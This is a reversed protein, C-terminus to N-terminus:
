STPKPTPHPQTKPGPQAAPAAPPVAPLIRALKIKDIKPFNATLYADGQDTILDQSPTEGYGPYIKDVVDMGEIVTGFPAFGM